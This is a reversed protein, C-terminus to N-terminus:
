ATVDATARRLRQAVTELMKLAISPHERLLGRFAWSTIAVLSIPSTATVTASRPGGDLLSIEGFFDGQGLKARRRGGVTVEATGDVVLFFGIGRDGERSIVHGERHSVVKASRAIVDLERKSCGSFVPVKALKEAIDRVGM